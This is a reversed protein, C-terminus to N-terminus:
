PCGGRHVVVWDDPPRAPTPLCDGAGIAAVIVWEGSQLRRYAAVFPGGSPRRDEVTIAHDGTRVLCANDGELALFPGRWGPLRVWQEVYAVEGAGTPFTGREILADGEWSLDGVDDASAGAELDVRHGWRYGDVDWGSRGSFCREGASRHFPVRVDAYCTGAQIWVVRQTEFPPGGDIAVSRRAWAGHVFDPEATM